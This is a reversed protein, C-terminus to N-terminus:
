DKMIQFVKFLSEGDIIQNEQPVTQAAFPPQTNSNNGKHTKVM